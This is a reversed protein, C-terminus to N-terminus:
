DSRSVISPLVSVEEPTLIIVHPPSVSGMGKVGRRRHNAPDFRHLVPVLLREALPSDWNPIVDDDEPGTNLMSRTFKRKPVKAGVNTAPAELEFIVPTDSPLIEDAVCAFDEYVKFFKEKWEEAAFLRDVPVGVRASIFDKIAKISSSKDLDMDVLVPPDSLPLFKVKKTWADKVPLPLTLNNFPDFTISVKSCVPCILTSKYMGTFLDAIVSDDRKKTIDWVQDAMERIAEPNDLMDDTSEPKVIYPKKEVRSLDEQLGDLLFGLFEQSDQQGYGSFQPAYRGLISKFARPTVSSSPRDKNYIDQLLDGYARAVNGNHGLHNSENIETRYEGTLFYKTLEEVSRLCQLASNMYCTNGLNSLGIRGLSRGSKQKSRGRTTPGQLAPSSRGSTAPRPQTSLASATPGRGFQAAKEKGTTRPRFTSIWATRTDGEIQEDLVITEDAVLSHYCLLSRGNYLADGTQDKCELLDRDVKDQLQMFDGVDVFLRLWSDQPNNSNQEDVASPSTPPTSLTTDQDPQGSSSAAALKRPVRWLRVKRTLPITALDKARRLFPNFRYSSSCLFRIAPSAPMSSDASPAASSASSWLRHFKFIPPHFEFIINSNLSEPATNHAIRVIPLQGKVLGYWETVLDWAEKPFLEFHDRGTGPRLRVVDNDEVDKIVEEIIDSNDVPGPPGGLAEKTNTLGGVQAQALRLWRRSILYTEDGERLATENAAGVLAELKRIQEPVPPAGAKPSVLVEAAAANVKEGSALDDTNMDADSDNEATMLKTDEGMTLDAGIQTDHGSVPEM